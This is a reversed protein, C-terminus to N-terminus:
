IKLMNISFSEPEIIKYGHNIFCIESQEDYPLFVIKDNEIALEAEAIVVENKDLLAFGGEHNFDVNHELLLKVTIKLRDDFFSVVEDADIIPKEIETEADEHAFFQLLNYVRWFNNWDEKNLDESISNLYISFCVNLKNADVWIKSTQITDPKMIESKMYFEGSEMVEDSVTSLDLQTTDKELAKRIESYACCSSQHINSQWSAFYLAINEKLTIMDKPNKIFYLLRSLSNPVDLFDNIGYNRELMSITERYLVRNIKLSDCAVADHPDFLELDDWTLTWSIISGSVRIAERKKFDNYFRLHEKSAHFAYGDLYIAVQPIDETELQEWGNATCQQALTCIIQFDARTSLNVGDTPGLEYQPYIVYGFRNDKQEMLLSYHYVGYDNKKEFKWGNQESAKRIIRVFLEELESEEIGGSGTMSGLGNAITQWEGAREIIKAFLTDAKERSLADRSYQNGYSLICRYCGDKGHFQCECNHIQEHSIKLLRTFAETNFLKSLYGTGGPITDYMVLYRDFKSNHENFEEYDDIHIHEPNGNYFFRLGLELGAKFMTVTAESDIEQVPLLIKIAETQMEHFLFVERFIPNPEVPNYIVSKHRCYPYHFEALRDELRDKSLAISINSTSKGCSVCTVFGHKPVSKHNNIDLHLSNKSDTLGLNTVTITVKKAYEIGFPINKMGYSGGFGDRAFMFHKAIRFREPEREDKSDDLAADDRKVNSKVSKLRYFAHINSGWSPDGCKPCNTGVALTIDEICDCKSCFRKNVLVNSDSWDSTNIGTVPLKYGQTYFSAGPVLERIASSASRVLELTEIAPAQTEESGKPIVSRIQAKLTVGTEPFAYNPLLGTNTMFELVSSNNTQRLQASIMRSEEQLTKFEDDNSTLELMRKKTTKTHDLLQLYDNKLSEFERKIRLYFLDDTLTQYLEVLAIEKVSDPFQSSFSEKLKEEHAKIFSILRNVFFDETHTYNTKLHLQALKAPMINQPDASTWSDLCFALFHRRLIDKAELFCGPTNVFGQMMEEPDTYYFLDHKKNRAYNLILFSGTKRGARGVRQMFNSPKPPISSNSAVNLDGIDIGMELTSTAVLTNTSNFQPHEKFNFELKERGKRDLLGTHEAAYIRPSRNRNYVMQYYNLEADVEEAYKGKCNYALCPTNKSLTDDAGIRLVSQCCSCRFHKVKNQVLLNLPTLAYNKEGNCAQEDLLNVEVLRACLQAYFDNVIGEYPKFVSEPDNQFSKRFYQHYWNDKKAYTTDLLGREHRTTTLLKPFRSNKGFGKNLFHRSDRNWNLDFLKLDNERFKSLYLHDVGGRQRLRHLFGNVFCIFNGEDLDGLNNEAMWPKMLEFVNRILKEPFFSASSGTKELTRGIQSNYGFESVIEWTVRLNFEKIFSAPFVKNVLFTNVDVKLDSPFFRYVYEEQSELRHTWYAIFKEQLSEVSVPGEIERLVRQLSQRFTFRYNRAEFFGAQHAADQVSNTFVLIKREKEDSEDLDSSMVQSIAVSALTAVKTGIISMSKDSGCEPCYLLAKNDNSVKRVAVVAMRDAQQKDYMQLNEKDIFTKLVDSAGYEEVPDHTGDDVNLCYINKNKSFFHSNAEAPDIHFKRENDNKVALWGSAGCERCFYAPLSVSKEEEFSIENRWTFEPSDNIKRSLGSLERIWLQIQLYLFPFKKTEGVKAEAILALLSGLVDERPNLTGDVEPLKGFDANLIALQRILEDVRIYGKSTIVVIDRVISLRTLEGALEQLSNAYFQWMQKQRDIYTQYTEDSRMRLHKVASLRPVFDEMEDPFFENVSIRKEEIVSDEGFTEGFITSAYETIQRKSDAGSGITASTGVPCLYNQPINIKLKLRRILNAVDTGQAGDYTHLEDLVLFQLLSPDQINYEWLRMYNQKMLGYDLMKFNTLLIDPTADLIADRDEIIHDKGMMQPFKKADKGEGIFLGATIKGKLREDTWITEAMRKAQDSALANMPYLIIVKIGKRDRNKYCYDLVPYLFCETKGSGTGTTLLTPQPIHGKRASLREFSRLQHVYPTFSPKIELPIDTDTEAVVFPTKLSVYPGKIIGQDKDEVFKYFANYVSADKFRFTAKIYEIASQMVEYAQQLPLM